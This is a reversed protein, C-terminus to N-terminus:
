GLKNDYLAELVNDECGSMCYPYFECYACLSGLAKPYCGSLKAWAIMEEWQKDSELWMNILQETRNFIQREFKFHFGAPEGKYMRSRYGVSIGNILAGACNGFKNTVYKTYRSMQSDIEFKKWYFPSFAKSTTKHDWFYISGSPLHEAVLDIHLEHKGSLTEVDDKLETAIVRWDKDQEKYWEAYAELAMVGSEASYEKKETTVGEMATKFVEIATALTGNPAYYAELASHFAIGFDRAITEEGDEQKKWGKENLHFKFPCGNFTSLQSWRM